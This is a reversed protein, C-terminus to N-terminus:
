AGVKKNFTLVASFHDKKFQTVETRVACKIKIYDSPGEDIIYAHVEIETGSKPDVTIPLELKVNEFQVSAPNHIGSVYAAAQTMAELGFVTPFLYNGNFCHDAVYKDDALTLHAQCLVEVKDLAMITTELYRRAIPKGALPECIQSGEWIGSTVVVEDYGATTQTLDLFFNVGDNKPIPKVGTESFRDGTKLHAAMGVEAWMGYAICVSHCKLHKESFKQTGPGPPGSPPM